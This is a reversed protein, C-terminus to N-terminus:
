HPTTARESLLKTTFRQNESIREVEIAISDVAQEIRELRSETSFSAAPSKLKTEHYRVVANAIARVSFAVASLGVIAVTADGSDV